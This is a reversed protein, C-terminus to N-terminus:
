SQQPSGTAVPRPRVMWRRGEDALVQFGWKEYFPVMDPVCSLSLLEIRQLRPHALIAEVLRRGLRRGRWAPAVVVDYIMGRYVFDTLLRCFAVLRGTEREAFAIVLSVKLMERVDDLERGKTWWENQFLAHLEVVQTETLSDIQILDHLIPRM